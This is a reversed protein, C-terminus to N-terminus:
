RLWHDIPIAQFALYGDDLYLSSVDGGNPSSFLRTDFKTRDFIEGKVIGLVESLRDSTYKTNGVWEVDGFYFQNGERLYIDIGVTGDSNRYVTDNLIKANRYGLSNYKAIVLDLDEEYAGKLYKSRKFIHLINKEKTKKMTNALKKESIKGAGIFNIHGIKIKSNREVTIVLFASNAVLTDPFEKIEASADLFGKDQFHKEIINETNNVLNENIITGRILNIKERISEAESKSLGEFKFRSLRPREILAIDLFVENGRIETIEIRINDFLKQKWLNKIARSTEDGPLTLKQGVALGSFLTIAQQDFNRVGSVTIGGITFERPNRYDVEFNGLGVQAGSQFTCCLLAFFCICKLPFSSVLKELDVNM